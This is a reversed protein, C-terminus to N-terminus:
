GPGPRVPLAGWIVADGGDPLFGWHDAVATIVLMQCAALPGEPAPSPEAPCGGRASVYLLDGDLVLAVTILSSVHSIMLAVLESAVLTASGVMGPLRWTLCAQTVFDRTHRVAGPLPLVQESTLSLATGALAARARTLDVGCTAPAGHRVGARVAGDLARGGRILGTRNGAVRLGDALATAILMAEDQPVTASLDLWLCDGPRQGCAELTAKLAAASPPDPSGHVTVLVAEPGADVQWSMPPSM